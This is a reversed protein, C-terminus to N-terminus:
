LNPLNYFTAKKMFCSNMKLNTKFFLYEIYHLFEVNQEEDCYYYKQEQGSPRNKVLGAVTTFILGVFIWKSFSVRDNPETLYPVSCFATNRKVFM